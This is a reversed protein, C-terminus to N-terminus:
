EASTSCPVRYTAGTSYPDFANREKMVFCYPKGSRPTVKYRIQGNALRTSDVQNNQDPKIIIPQEQEATPNSEQAALISPICLTLLLALRPRGAIPKLKNM